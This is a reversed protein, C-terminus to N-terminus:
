LSTCLTDGKSIVPFLHTTNANTAKFEGSSIYAASFPFPDANEIPYDPASKITLSTCAAALDQLRAIANDISNPTPPM